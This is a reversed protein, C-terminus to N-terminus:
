NVPAGSFVKLGVVGTVSLLLCLLRPTNAAENLMLIGYPMTGVASIGVWVAYATGVPVLRM